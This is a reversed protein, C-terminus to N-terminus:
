EKDLKLSCSNICYRMGTPGPGDDFVHGLHSGCKDCTVEIRQMFHNNDDHESISEGMPKTFSPWGTGSDFKDDSKFLMNGCCVCKYVGKDKTNMYQGTFPMETGKKRAVHFQEDTLQKKWEDDSKIIKTM